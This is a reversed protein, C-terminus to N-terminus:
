SATYGFVVIIDKLKGLDTINTTTLEWESQINNESQVTVQLDRVTEHLLSGFPAGAQTIVSSNLRKLTPLTTPPPSGDQIPVGFIDVQCITLTKGQVFFPFRNKSIAFKASRTGAASQTLQAWETPFEQKLSFM